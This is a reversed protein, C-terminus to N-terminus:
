FGLFYFVVVTELHPTNPFLDFADARAIAYGGDAIRRADRALTAIDCSVYILRAAKMRLVGDMAERSLGTRPPDVIVTGKEMDQQLRVRAVFDEVAQRVAVISGGAAAANAALDAAAVQDGEVATVRVGRAAGVSVAFLGVGAYLDLVEGDAPACDVVHAVLQGLLHRNGQFFALVHRRLAVSVGGVTLRDTVHAAGRVAFASILGTVGDTASLRDFAPTEIASATDVSVVRDSADM